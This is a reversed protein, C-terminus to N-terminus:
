STPEPRLSRVKSVFQVIGVSELRALVDDVTMQPARLAEAQESLVQLVDPLSLDLLRLLFEDPHQAVIDYGALAPEPFDKLNFTVITQAGARIAAALVHRDEPDPLHLGVILRAYNRVLPDPLADVMLRRTRDLSAINLDPRERLISRFCEDLIEDTLKARFLGTRAARLLLDRLPAPHLVCADFVVVSAM